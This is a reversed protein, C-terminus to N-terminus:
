FRATDITLDASTGFLADGPGASFLYRRTGEIGDQGMKIAFLAVSGSQIVWVTQPNDLMIPQNGRFTLVQGQLETPSIQSVM